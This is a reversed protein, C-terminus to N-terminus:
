PERAAERPNVPKTGEAGPRCLPVEDEIAGVIEELIDELTVIGLFEGAGDRVVAMPQRERRLTLLLRAASQDPDVYIPAYMADLLIVCGTPPSFLHFTFPQVSAEFAM